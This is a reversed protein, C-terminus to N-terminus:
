KAGYLPYQFFVSMKGSAQEPEDLGGLMRIKGGRGEGFSM